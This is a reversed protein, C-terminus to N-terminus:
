AGIVDFRHDEIVKLVRPLRNTWTLDGKDAGCDTRMNFSCVTFPKEACGAVAADSQCGLALTSVLSGLGAMMGITLLRKMKQAEKSSIGNLTLETKM